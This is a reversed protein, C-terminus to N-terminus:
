AGGLLRQWWGTKAKAPALQAIVASLRTNEGQLVEIVQEKAALLERLMKVEVQLTEVSASHVPQTGDSGFYQGAHVESHVAGNGNSHVIPFGKPAPEFVRFLEVPEIQWEGSQNKEASIKGNRIAKFIAAKSMGVSDAAQKVTISV